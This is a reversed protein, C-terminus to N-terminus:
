AVMKKKSERSLSARKKGFELFIERQLQVTQFSLTPVTSARFSNLCDGAAARGAEESVSRRTFKLLSRRVCSERGGFLLMLPLTM